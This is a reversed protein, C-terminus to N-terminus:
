AETQRPHLVNHLTRLLAGSNYPKLLVKQVRLERIEAPSVKESQGTSIIVPTKHGAKRLCRLFVLGKMVPMMVDTLVVAIHRSERTFIALAEAGDSATIVKYGHAELLDQAAKLIQPEDDVVLVIEGRGNPPPNAPGAELFPDQDPDSPLYIQFTTGKSPMSQVKIFGGHGKVIGHVTSLGLGTGKGVEKTTFFPDFIHELIDPPIGTGTDSVELLVHPGPTCEAQMSAFSADIEINSAGLRLWGGDPMADRANVCLNLLVQHLQTADGIVTHLDPEVKMEITIDKPFTSQIIKEIEHILKGTEVPQKEGELGRGFTLVQRIIKTGRAASSEIADYLRTRKEEPMGMRLLDVSMMIPALINNLDHALGSALTGISEMRQARLFQQELKRRQTIDHFTWVRGYYTGDSGLVPASYRELVTGDMLEILDSSSENPHAYLYAVKQAFVEPERVKDLVFKVQASDDQDNALHPPIKWLQNMRENQILKKGVRDVVLIGDISSRVQAEFFATRWRLEQEAKRRQAENQGVELAFSIDLALEDLLRVEEEDFFGPQDAYLTFIGVTNDGIKLPFCGSSRYGRKMAEERWPLLLPDNAMDSCTVHHGSLFCRGSPGNSREQDRLDINVLDLYGEVVGAYAVPRVKDNVADHMGIWAMRFGGVEVAIRCAEALMADQDKERVINKNIASLVAYVRNLHRIHREAHKQETIDQCSGIVKSPHGAPDPIIRSRTMMVGETGDRRIVRHELQRESGLGANEFGQAVECAVLSADAPHVFRQIYDEVSMSFGGEQEPTTGLLHFIHEDGTFTNTKTDFEWYALKAADMAQILQAQKERLSEEAQRSVTIDLEVGDWIIVNGDDKLRPASTLLRWCIAGSPMQMRLEAVFPKMEALAEAELTAVLAKDEEIIQGYLMQADRIAEEATVEHLTEVGASVYTFRRERGDKSMELQYIMGSPLNDGLIRIRAESERLSFETRKRETIVQTFMIVGGIKNGSTHWPRVEWQLWELSGDARKFMDEDRRETHGLLSRDHIEKWRKPIDPFVEYHSRGVVEKGELHYDSMWRDSAHLYRMGTDFMAVAAPTHKILNRLLQEQGALAEEARKQETIDRAIKSAGIIRGYPDKLPSITASIYINRGNKQIRTTEFHQITEGRSIRSLIEEEEHKLEPPILLLISQGIAEEATYGFTKEAGRNWSTIVGALTKGVIADDSSEVIAVLEQRKQELHRRATIDEALTVICKRKNLEILESNISIIKLSGDRTIVQRELARLSEGNMLPQLIRRREEESPWIGAEVTTSGILEAPLCGLLQCFSENVELCRGTNFDMIAIGSPNAQFAKSFKEEKERLEELEECRFFYNVILVAMCILALMTVVVVIVDLRRISSFISTAFGISQDYNNNLLDEAAEIAPLYAPILERELYAASGDQNGALILAEYAMCHRRFEQYRNKMAEVLVLDKKENVKLSALYQKLYDAFAADAKQTVKLSADRSEPTQVSAAMLVGRLSRSIAMMMNYASITGPVADQAIMNSDHKVQRGNYFATVALAIFLGLISIGALRMQLTTNRRNKM